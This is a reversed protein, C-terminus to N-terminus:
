SAVIFRLLACGASRDGFVIGADLIVVRDEGHHLRGDLGARNPRARVIAQHIDGAVAAFVPRVHRGRFVDHRFPNLDIRQLSRREFRAGRVHGRRHVLVVIVLRIKVFRALGPLLDGVTNGVGREGAHNALIWVLAAQQIRSSFRTNVNRKVVARIPLRHLEIKRYSWDSIERNVLSLLFQNGGGLAARKPDEVIQRGQVLHHVGASEFGRIFSM